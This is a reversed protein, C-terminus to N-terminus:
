KSEDHKRQKITLQLRQLAIEQAKAYGYQRATDWFAKSDPFEYGADDFLTEEMKQLLTLWPQTDKYDATSERKRIIRNVTKFDYGLMEDLIEERYQRFEETTLNRDVLDLNQIAYYRVCTHFFKRLDEVDPNVLEYTVRMQKPKYDAEVSKQITKIWKEKRDVEKAPPPLIKQQTLGYVLVIRKTRM